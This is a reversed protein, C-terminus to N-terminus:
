ETAEVTYAIAGFTGLPALLMIVHIFKFLVSTIVNLPKETISRQKDELLLIRFGFILALVLVQLLSISSFAGVFNDPFINLIFQSLSVQSTYPISDDTNTATLITGRGVQFLEGMGFGRLIAIISIVEFYILAAPRIKDVQKIDGATRIGLIVTLFILTAVASKILRLFVDGPLELSIAFEHFLFGVLIGLIM